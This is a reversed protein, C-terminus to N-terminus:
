PFCLSVCGLAVVAATETRLISSGLSVPRTRKMKSFAEVEQPSWGGEPGICVHLPNEFSIDDAKPEVAGLIAKTAAIIDPVTSTCEYQNGGKAPLWQAASSPELALLRLVDPIQATELPNEIEMAHCRCCQKLASTSIINARQMWNRSKEEESSSVPSRNGRVYETSLPQIRFIGLETAKEVIWEFQAMRPMGIELVIPLIRSCKEKESSDLDNADICVGWVGTKNVKKSSIKKTGGDDRRELRAKVWTQNKLRDNISNAMTSAPTVWVDEGVRLRLVNILHHSESTSLPMFQGGFKLGEEVFTRRRKSAIATSYRRFFSM